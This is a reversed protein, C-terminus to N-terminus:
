LRNMVWRECSMATFILTEQTEKKLTSLLLIIQPAKQPPTEQEHRKAELTYHLRGTDALRLGANGSGSISATGQWPCGRHTGCRPGHCSGHWGAGSNGSNGEALQNYGGPASVALITLALYGHASDVSPPNLQLFTNRKPPSKIVALVPPPGLVAGWATEKGLFLVKM